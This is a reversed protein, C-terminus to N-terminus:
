ECAQHLLTGSTQGYVKLLALSADKATKFKPGDAFLCEDMPLMNLEIRYTWGGDKLPWVQGTSTVKTNKFIDESM